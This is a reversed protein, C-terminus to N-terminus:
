KVVVVGKTMAGAPSRLTVFYLGSPFTSIDISMKQENMADDNNVNANYVQQGYSNTIIIQAVGLSQRSAVASQLKYVVDISTFSPNPNLEILNKFNSLDDLVSTVVSDVSLVAISDGKTSNSSFVLSDIIYLTRTDPAHFEVDFSFSEDPQLILQNSDSIERSFVPRFFSNQNLYYNSISLM